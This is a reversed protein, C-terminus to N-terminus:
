LGNYAEKIKEYESKTFYRRVAIEEAVFDARTGPEIFFIDQLYAVITQQIVDSAASFLNKSFITSCFNCSCAAKEKADEMLISPPIDPHKKYEDHIFDFATEVVYEPTDMDELMSDFLNCVLDWEAEYYMM